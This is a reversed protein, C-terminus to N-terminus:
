CLRINRVPNVYLALLLQGAPVGWWYVFRVLDAGYSRLLADGTRPGLLLLVGKAVKPALGAMRGLHDVMVENQYLTEENGFWVLGLITQVVHQMTVAKIVESVTCKNRSMVEPSEHIRRKEFYPFQMTDLFHFGLSFVWYFLTPVLLSLHKDSIQPFISRHYTHYIPYGPSSPTILDLLPMAAAATANSARIVSPIHHLMTSTM